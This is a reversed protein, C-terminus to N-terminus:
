WHQPIGVNRNQISQIIKPGKMIHKQIEEQHKKDDHLM